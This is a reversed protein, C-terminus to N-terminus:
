RVRDTQRVGPLPGSPGYHAALAERRWRRRDQGTARRRRVHLSFHGAVVCAVPWRRGPVNLDGARHASAAPWWSQPSDGGGQATRGRTRTRRRRNREPRRQHRSAGATGPRAQPRGRRAAEDIDSAREADDALITVVNNNVELFGGAVFFGEEVGAPARAARRARADDAAARPAAPHRTAGRQWARQVTEAEGDFVRAAGDRHHRATDSTAVHSAGGKRM